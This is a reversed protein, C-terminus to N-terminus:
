ALEPPAMRAQPRQCPCVMGAEDYIIQRVMAEKFGPVNYLALRSMDRVVAWLKAKARDGNNGNAIGLAIALDALGALTEPLRDDRFVTAINGNGLEIQVAQATPAIAWARALAGQRGHQDQYGRYTHERVVLLRPAHVRIMHSPSNVYVLVTADCHISVAVGGGGGNLSLRVGTLDLCRARWGCEPTVDDEGTYEIVGVRKDTLPMSTPNALEVRTQPGLCGEPISVATPINANWDYKIGLLGLPKTLGRLGALLRVDINLRHLNTAPAPLWVFVDDDNAASRRKAISLQQLAEPKLVVVGMLQSLAEAPAIVNLDALGPGLVRAGDTPQLGAATVISLAQETPVNLDLTMLYAWTLLEGLDGLFRAAESPDPRPAVCTIDSIVHLDMDFRSVTAALRRMLQRSPCPQDSRVNLIICMRYDRHTHAHAEVCDVLADWHAPGPNTQSFVTWGNVDLRVCTKAM